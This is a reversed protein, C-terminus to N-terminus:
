RLEWYYRRGSEPLDSMVGHEPDYFVGYAYLSWHWCRPTELSLMCLMPLEDRSEFQVRRDSVWMGGTRLVTKMEKLDTERDNGLEAAVDEPTRGLVMALVAQGCMLDTPEHIYEIRRRGKLAKRIKELDQVDDVEGCLMDGIDMPFICCGEGAVENYANEAYCRRKQEDGSECYRCISELWGEWDSRLLKYLAWAAAANEFCDVGIKKILGDETVAKFDKQPLAATSSVAMTSRSNDLARRLVGDDFVLDGHILLIDDRLCDRAKYISYIYNTSDFVPNFVTNIEMDGGISRLHEELVERHGGTTIVAKKIGAARLQSLQRDIITEGQGLETMCKPRDLTLEGMRSGVGSNLILATM